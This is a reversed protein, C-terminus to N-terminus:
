GFPNLHFIIVVQAANSAIIALALVIRVAIHQRRWACILRSV